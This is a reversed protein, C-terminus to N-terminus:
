FNEEDNYNRKKQLKAAQIYKNDFVNNKKCM